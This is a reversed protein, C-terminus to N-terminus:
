LTEEENFTPKLVNIGRKQLHKKLKAYDSEKRYIGVIAGGSGAFKASVGVERALEVM